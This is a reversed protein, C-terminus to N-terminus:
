YDDFSLFADLLNAPSMGSSTSHTKSATVLNSLTGDARKRLSRLTDLDVDPGDRGPRREFTEVDNTIAADANVVSKMPILVKTPASSCGAALLSDIASLFATMHVDLVGGDPAIPLQDDPQEPDQLFL